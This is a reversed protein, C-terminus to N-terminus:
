SRACLAAIDQGDFRSRAAPRSSCACHDAARDHEQRLGDRRRPRADRGRMCTSSVGDVAHVAGIQRQFIIGRTIPFHKVLDRVEVCRSAREHRGGGAPTARSQRARARRRRARRGRRRARAWLAAARRPPSCARSATARTTRRGARADPRDRKHRERVYPCRPHFPLRRPLNILSPPRGPIPVLPEDRPTDLRPISRLLGWTYPHEPARSSRRRTPAQEVIRGAYMVAIEDAMEAVVGLDHTILVVAM